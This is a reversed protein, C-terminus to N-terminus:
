MKWLCKRQGWEASRCRVAMSRHFWSGDTEDQVARGVDGM